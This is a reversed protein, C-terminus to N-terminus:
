PTPRIRFPIKLTPVTECDTAITLYKGDLDPDFIINKLEVRYGRSLTSRVRVKMNTMPPEVKLINFSKRLSSQVLLLRVAPENTSSGIAQPALVLEDPVVYIDSVVRGMMPITIRPYRPSDTAVWVDTTFRGLALPPIPRIRVRYSSGPKNTEVDVDFASSTVGVGTIRGPMSEHFDIEVTKSEAADARLNGWYIRDPEVKAEAVAEGILSLTLRPEDPDNSEISIRKHQRGSRGKLVLRAQVTIQEGPYIKNDELRVLMCGCDSRVKFINLPVEGENVLTFFHRVENTNGLTGFCYEPEDCILSPLDRGYAAVSGAFLGGCIFLLMGCLLPRM